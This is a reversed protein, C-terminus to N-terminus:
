DYDTGIDFRSTFGYSYIFCESICGSGLRGEGSQCQIITRGAGVAGNWCMARGARVSPPINQDMRAPRDGENFVSIDNEPKAPRSM